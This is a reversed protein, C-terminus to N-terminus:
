VQGGVIQKYAFFSQEWTNLIAFENITLDITSFRKLANHLPTKKLNYWNEIIFKGCGYKYDVLCNPIDTKSSAIDLSGSFDRIAIVSPKIVKIISREIKFQNRFIKIGVKNAWNFFFSSMYPVTIFVQSDPIRKQISYWSVFCMWNDCFNSECEIIFALDKDEM